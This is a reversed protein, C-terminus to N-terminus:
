SNFLKICILALSFCLLSGGLHLLIHTIFYIYSQQQLLAISEATFTSFTTLAGLVGTMIFLQWAPSVYNSEQILAVCLGMLFAGLANAALTGIALSPSLHNLSLGILWRLVAGIAGGSAVCFFSSVSM